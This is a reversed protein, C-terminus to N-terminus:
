ADLIRRYTEELALAAQDWSYRAHVSESFRQAEFQETRLDAIVDDMTSTLAAVDATKFLRHGPGDSQLIEVHPDIDSCILPLGHGAAELVSLPLGELHSPMVFGSAHHYLVELDDGYVPGLLLVRDDAEALRQLAREYRTAGSAGGVVVLKLDGEVRAYAEILEDVAKEPVLRGVSLLFPDDGIGLRRLVPETSLDITEPVSPMGNPIVVARRGFSRYVDDALAESVVVIEDPVHGTVWWAMGLVRKASGNWKERLDDRGHVTSVVRNGPRLKALPSLMTPGLAHYHVIDYRFRLVHLTSFLSAMLNGTFKGQTSPVYRIRFAGTSISGPFAPRRRTSSPSRTAENPWGAASRKSPGNSVAM